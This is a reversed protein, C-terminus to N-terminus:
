ISEDKVGVKAELQYQEANNDILKEAELIVSQDLIPHVGIKDLHILVAKIDISPGKSGLEAIAKNKQDSEKKKLIMALLDKKTKIKIEKIDKKLRLLETVATINSARLSRIDEFNKYKKLIVDIITDLRQEEDGTAELEEELSQVYTILEENAEKEDLLKQSLKRM